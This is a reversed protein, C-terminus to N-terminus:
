AEGEPVVPEGPLRWQMLQSYNGLSDSKLRSTRVWGAAQYAAREAPVKAYRHHADETM